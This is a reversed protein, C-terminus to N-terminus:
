RSHLFLVPVWRFLAVVIWNALLFMALSGILAASCILANAAIREASQSDGDFVRGAGRRDGHAKARKVIEERSEADVAAMSPEATNLAEKVAQVIEACLKARSEASTSHQPTPDFPPTATQPVHHGVPPGAAQVVEDLDRIRRAKGPKGDVHMKQKSPWYNVKRQGIAAWHYTSHQIAGIGYRQMHQQFTKFSMTDRPENITRPYGPADGDIVEGTEEDLYGDIIADAIEGM